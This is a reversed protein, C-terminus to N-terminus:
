FWKIKFYSSLPYRKQSREYDVPKYTRFVRDWFDVLIGFNHHWMNGDHHLHHVPRSLWFVLDPNEHQVQHAYAAFAAYLICGVNFAIAAHISLLFYFAMGGFVLLPISPLFYGKFEGFGVRGTEWKITNPM